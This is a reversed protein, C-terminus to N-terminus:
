SGRRAKELSPCPKLTGSCVEWRIPRVKLAYYEASTMYRPSRDREALPLEMTAVAQDDWARPIDPHFPPDGTALAAAALWTLALVYV